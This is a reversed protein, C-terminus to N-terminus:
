EEELFLTLSNINQLTKKNKEINATNFNFNLQSGRKRADENGNVFFFFFNQTNLIKM